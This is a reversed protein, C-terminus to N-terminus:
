ALEAFINTTEEVFFAMEFFYFFSHGIDIYIEGIVLLATYVNQSSQICIECNM